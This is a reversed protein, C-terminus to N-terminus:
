GWSDGRGRRAAHLKRAKRGQAKSHAPSGTGKDTRELKSPLEAHNADRWAIEIPDRSPRKM